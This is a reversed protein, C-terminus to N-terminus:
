LKFLLLLYRYDVDRTVHRPYVRVHCSHFIMQYRRSVNRTLFYKDLKASKIKRCLAIFLLFNNVCRVFYPAWCKAFFPFPRKRYHFVIYLFIFHGKREIKYQIENSRAKDRLNSFMFNFYVSYIKRWYFKTISYWTIAGNLWTINLWRVPRGPVPLKFFAIFDDAEINAFLKNHCIGNNSKFPILQTYVCEM